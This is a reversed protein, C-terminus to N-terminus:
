AAQNYSIKSEDERTDYLKKAIETLGAQADNFNKFVLGSLDQEYGDPVQGLTDVAVLDKPDEQRESAEKPAVEPIAWFQFTVNKLKEHIMSGTRLSLPTLAQGHESYYKDIAKKVDLYSPLSENTSISETKIEEPNM